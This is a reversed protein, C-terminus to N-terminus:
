DYCVVVLGRKSALECVEWRSTRLPETQDDPVEPGLITISFSEVREPM